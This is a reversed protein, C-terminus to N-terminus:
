DASDAFDASLHKPSETLMTFPTAHDKIGRKTLAYVVFSGVWHTVAYETTSLVPLGAAVHRAALDTLSTRRSDLESLGSAIGDLMWARSFNLGAFHAAKGDALNTAVVPAFASCQEPFGPLARDLWTAFDTPALCRRVVDAEALAPSLFDYASPEWSLPLATDDFYFRAVSDQVLRLTATDGVTTAWDAILGLAFATQSHEGTRVPGALKPLWGRVRAAILEELPILNTRWVQAIPDSWEHLEAALQLLWTWGYPREFGARDQPAFFDHEAALGNTTLQQHLREAVEVDWPATPFLRLCRVLLWHSHVASHWDFCGYFVPTLDRPRSFPQPAHSLLPFHHPYERVIGALAWAVCRDIADSSRM